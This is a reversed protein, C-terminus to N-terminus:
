VFQEGPWLATRLEDRTVVEGQNLLLLELARFPQGSLKLRVGHKRLERSDLDAEFTGFRWGRHKRGIAEQM